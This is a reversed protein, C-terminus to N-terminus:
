HYQEPLLHAEQNACNGSVYNQNQILSVPDIKSCVQRAYGM